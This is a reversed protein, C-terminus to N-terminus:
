TVCHVCAGGEVFNAVLQICVKAEAPATVFKTKSGHGTYILINHQKTRWVCNKTGELTKITGQLQTFVLVATAHAVMHKFLVYWSFHHRHMDQKLVDHKFYQSIIGSEKTGLFKTLHSTSLNKSLSNLKYRNRKYQNNTIAVTNNSHRLEKVVWLQVEYNKKKM